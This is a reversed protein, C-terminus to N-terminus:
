RSLPQLVTWRIKEAVGAPDVAESNILVVILLRHAPHYEIRSLFGNVGGSHQVPADTEGLRFGYGYGGPSGDSHTHSATMAEFMPRKTLWQFWRVLDSTSSCLGGAFRLAPGLELPDDNALRDGAWAYGQARHPTIRQEDCESTQQMGAPVVIEEHVVDFFSRGTAREVIAGALAYGANSYRTQEGPRRTEALTPAIWRGEDDSVVHLSVGATHTLLHHITITSARPPADDLWRTVPDSRTLIKKEELRLITAALFQKSVSGLRYVTRDTAPVGNEVDALGFGRNMLVDDGRAVALSLGPVDARAVSEEAIATIRAILADRDGAHPSTAGAPAPAVEHKASNRFRADEPFRRAGERRIAAAKEPKETREYLDGLLAYPLASRAADIEITKELHRIADDTRRLFPPVNYFLVGLNLHAEWNRPDIALARGLHGEISGVLRGKEMFGAFAIRCEMDIQGLRVHPTPDDPAATAAATWLTEARKAAALTLKENKQSAAARCEALAREAEESAGAIPALVLILFFTLRKM